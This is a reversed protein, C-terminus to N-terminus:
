VSCIGDSEIVEDCAEARQLVKEHNESEKLSIWAMWNENRYLRMDRLVDEM